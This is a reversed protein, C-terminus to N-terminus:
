VYVRVYVSAGYRGHEGEYICGRGFGSVRLIARADRYDRCVFPSLRINVVRPHVDNFAEEGRKREGEVKEQGDGKRRREKREGKGGIKERERKTDDIGEHRVEVRIEVIVVALLIDQRVSAKVPIRSEAREGKERERKRWREDDRGGDRKRGCNFYPWAMRGCSRFAGRKRERSGKRSVASSLSFSLSLAAEDSTNVTENFGTCKETIGTQGHVENERNRWREGGGGKTWKKLKRTEGERRQRKERFSNGETAKGDGGRGGVGDEEAEKEGNNKM